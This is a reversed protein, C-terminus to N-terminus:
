AYIGSHGVYNANHVYYVKGGFPYKAESEIPIANGRYVGISYHQSWNFALCTKEEQRTVNNREITEIPGVISLSLAHSHYQRPETM